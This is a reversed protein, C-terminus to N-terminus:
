IMYTFNFIYTQGTALETHTLSSFLFEVTGSPTIRIRTLVDDIKRYTKEAEDKRLLFNM